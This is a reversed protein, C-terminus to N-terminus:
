CANLDSVLVSPQGHRLLSRHIQLVCPIMPNSSSMEPAQFLGVPTLLGVVGCVLPGQLSKDETSRLNPLLPPHSSLYRLLVPTYLIDGMSLYSAFELRKVNPSLPDKGPPGVPGKEGTQGRDGKSGPPGVPGPPGM